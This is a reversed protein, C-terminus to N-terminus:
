MSLAYDGSRDRPEVRNGEGRIESIPNLDGIEYGFDLAYRTAGFDLQTNQAGDEVNWFIYTGPADEFSVVAMAYREPDGEGREAWFRNVVAGDALARELLARNNPGMSAVVQTFSVEPAEVEIDGAPKLDGIGSLAVTDAEIAAQAEQVSAQTVYVDEGKVLYTGEANEFSVVTWESGHHRVSIHDVGAGASLAEEIFPLRGRDAIGRAEQERRLELEARRIGEAEMLDLGAEYRRDLERDIRQEWEEMTYGPRDSTNIDEAGASAMTRDSPAVEDFGEVTIKPSGYNAIGEARALPPGFELRQGKYRGYEIEEEYGDWYKEQWENLENALNDPVALEFDRVATRVNDVTLERSNLYTERHHKVQVGIEDDREYEYENRYVELDFFGERPTISARFGEMYGDNVIYSEGEKTFEEELWPGRKVTSEM